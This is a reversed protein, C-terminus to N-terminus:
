NILQYNYFYLFDLYAHWNEQVILAAKALAPRGRKRKQGLPLAKAEDPAVIFKMRLSIGLVHVCMYKKFFDSCDCIGEHWNNKTLPKPFNINYFQFNRLKFEDFTTWEINGEIQKPDVPIKYVVHRTDEHATM